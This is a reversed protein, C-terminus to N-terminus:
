ADGGEAQPLEAPLFPNLIELGSFSPNVLHDVKRRNNADIFALASYLIRILGRFDRKIHYTEQERPFQDWLGDVLNTAEALQIAAGELTTAKYCTLVERLSDIRDQSHNRRERARAELGGDNNAARFSLEDNYDAERYADGLQRGIQVIPDPEDRYLDPANATNQTKAM